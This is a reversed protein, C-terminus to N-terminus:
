HMTRTNILIIILKILLIIIVLPELIILSRKIM